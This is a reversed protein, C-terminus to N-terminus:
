DGSPGVKLVVNALFQHLAAARWLDSEGKPEVPKAGTEAYLQVEEVAADIIVCIQQKTLRCIVSLFGLKQRLGM